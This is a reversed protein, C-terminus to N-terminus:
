HPSWHSADAEQKCGLKNQVKLLFFDAVEDLDAQRKKM